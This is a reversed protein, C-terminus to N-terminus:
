QPQVIGVNEITCHLAVTVVHLTIGGTRACIAGQSKWAVLSQCKKITNNKLATLRRGTVQAFDHMSRRVHQNSRSYDFTKMVPGHIPIPLGKPNLKAINQGFQFRQWQRITMGPIKNLM